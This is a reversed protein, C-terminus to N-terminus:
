ARGGGNEGDETLRLSVEYNGIVGVSGNDSATLEATVTYTGEAQEVHSLDLLVEVDEASVAAVASSTGCLTVHLSETLVEASFGAPVNACVFNDVTLAATKFDLFNVKVVAKTFTDKNEIGKPLNIEYSYTAHSSATDVKSLEITDLVVESINMLDAAEGAIRISSHDISWNVNDASYGPSEAFNVKLPVEKVQLVPVSVQIADSVVHIDENEVLQNKYDYLQYDYMEAITAMAGTVDILVKAYKVQLIDEQQGRIELSAPTIVVDGQVFGPAVTGIVEYRVDVTKKYLEGVYVTAAYASADAISISGAPVGSPLIMNYKLTQVGTSNVSDLEVQVRVKKTDLKYIVNREGKLKLSVTRDSEALLMLGKEALTTNEGVYEIEINNAWVTSNVPEVSGAFLWVVVAVLISIGMQFAREKNMKMKM